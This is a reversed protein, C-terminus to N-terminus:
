NANYNIKNLIFSCIKDVSYLTSIGEPISLENIDNSISYKESLSKNTCLVPKSFAKVQLIKAPTITEMFQSNKYPLLISRASNIADALDSMSYISPVITINKHNYLISPVNNSVILIKYKNSISLIIENDIDKHFSGYYVFDYSLNPSIKKIYFENPVPPPMLYSFNNNENQSDNSLYSINDLGLKDIVNKNDCFIISNKSLINKEFELIYNKNCYKQQTTDHVCYYVWNAYKGCINYIHEHPVFSILIDDRNLILKNKIFIFKNILRFYPSPPFIFLKIIRDNNHFARNQAKTTKKSFFKSLRGWIGKLPISMSVREIFYCDINQRILYDFLYQNIHKNDNYNVESFIYIKM